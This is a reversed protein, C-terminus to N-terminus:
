YPHTARCAIRDDEGDEGEEDLEHLAYHEDATDEIGQKREDDVGGQGSKPCNTEVCLGARVHGIRIM